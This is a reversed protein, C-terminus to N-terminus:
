NNQEKFNKARTKLLFDGLTTDPNELYLKMQNNLLLNINDFENFLIKYIKDIEKILNQIEKNDRNENLLAMTSGMKGLLLLNKLKSLFLIGRMEANDDNSIDNYNTNFDELVKTINKLYFKEKNKSEINEIEEKLKVIKDKNSLENFDITELEKLRNKLEELNDM